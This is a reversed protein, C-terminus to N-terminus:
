DPHSFPQAYGWIENFSYSEPESSSFYQIIRRTSYLFRVLLENVFVPIAQTAQFRVDYGQNFLEIAFENMSKNFTSVPIHLKRNISNVSNIWTWLPSPIGMGRGKSSSSGSIDSILHGIWNSFAAFLKSSINHGKLEFKDDAKQLT